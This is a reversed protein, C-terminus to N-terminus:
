ELMNVQRCESPTALLVMSLLPRICKRLSGRAWIKGKCHRAPCYLRRVRPPNKHHQSVQLRPDSLRMRDGIQVRNARIPFSKDWLLHCLSKKGPADLGKHRNYQGDQVLIGLQISAAPQTLEAPRMHLRNAAAPLSVLVNLPVSSFMGMTAGTGDPGM